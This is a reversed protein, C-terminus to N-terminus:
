SDHLRGRVQADVKHQCDCGYCESHLSKAITIDGHYITRDGLGTLFDAGQRCPPCIMPHQELEV